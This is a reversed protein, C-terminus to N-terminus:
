VVTAMNAGYAYTLGVSQLITLAYYIVTNIGTIQQFIALGIGVFLATRVQQRLLDTWRGSETQQALSAKIEEIEVNVDALDRIRLLVLHAVEHHGGRILW